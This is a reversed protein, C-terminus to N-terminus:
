ARTDSRKKRPKGVDSRKKRPGGKNRDAVLGLKRARTLDKDRSNEWGPIKRLEALAKKRREVNARNEDIKKQLESKEEESMTQMAIAHKAEAEERKRKAHAAM